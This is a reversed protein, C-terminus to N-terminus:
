VKNLIKAMEEHRKVKKTTTKILEPDQHAVYNGTVRNMVFPHSNTGVNINLMTDCLETADVVASIEAIQMGQPCKMACRALFQEITERYTVIVKKGEM